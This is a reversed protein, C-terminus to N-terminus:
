RSTARAATARRIRKLAHALVNLESAMATEMILRKSQYMLTEFSERRGTLRAYIRRMSTANPM